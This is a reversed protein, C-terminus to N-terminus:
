FFIAHHHASFTKTFTYECGMLYGMGLLHIDTEMAFLPEDEFALRRIAAPAEALMAALLAFRLHIGRSVISLSRLQTLAVLHVRFRKERIRQEAEMESMGPLGTYIEGSSM